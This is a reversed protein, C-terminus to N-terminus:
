LEELESGLVGTRIELEYEKLDRDEVTGLAMAKYLVEAVLLGLDHRIQERSESEAPVECLANVVDNALGCAIGLYHGPGYEEELLFFAAWEPEIMLRLNLRSRVVFLTGKSGFVQVSEQRSRALIQSSNLDISQAMDAARLVIDATEKDFVLVYQEEAPIDALRPSVLRSKLIPEAEAKVDLRFKGMAEFQNLDRGCCVLGRVVNMSWDHTMVPVVALNAKWLSAPVMALDRLRIGIGFDTLIM